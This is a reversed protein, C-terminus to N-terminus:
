FKMGGNYCSIAWPAPPIFLVGRSAFVMIQRLTVVPFINGVISSMDKFSREM